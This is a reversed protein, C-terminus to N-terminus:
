FPYKSQVAQKNRIFNRVSTANWLANQKSIGQKAATSTEHKTCIVQALQRNSHQVLFTIEESLPITAVDTYSYLTGAASIFCHSYCIRGAPSLHHWWEKQQSLRCKGDPLAASLRCKQDVNISASLYQSWAHNYAFYYLVFYSGKRRQTFNSHSYILLKASLAM